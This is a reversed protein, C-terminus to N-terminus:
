FGEIVFSYNAFPQMVKTMEAHFLKNEKAIQLSAECCNCICLELATRYEPWSKEIISKNGKEFRVATVFCLKEYRSLLLLAYYQLLKSYYPGM